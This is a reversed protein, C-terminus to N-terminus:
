GVVPARRDIGGDVQPSTAIRQLLMARLRLVHMRVGPCRGSDYGIHVMVPPDLADLERLWDEQLAELSAYAQGAGVAYDAALAQAPAALLLGSVALAVGEKRLMHLLVTRYKAILMGIANKSLKLM